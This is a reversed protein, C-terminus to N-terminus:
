LTIKQGTKAAQAVALTVKLSLSADHAPIFPEAKKQVVACLQAAQATYADIFDTEIPQGSISQQWHGDPSDHQWLVLNPFELAGKTGMFRIANQGTKPLALNEGLAFEWGWPSPTRDSLFFSGVAQNKFQLSIAVADEKEFQQDIRSIFATVAEIEGCIFRLLDLEHILNTLIPGAKTKRRWQPAYYADDKRLSWQGSVGILTGIAGSDILEKAKSACPYYRRQHAVMVNCGAKEAARVIEAAEGDSAAIPKEVLLNKCGGEICAIVDRHHRETPTAIIVADATCAELMEAANGYCAIARSAAKAQVAESPDAFAVLEAEALQDIAMIHRQGINGAGVLGIKVQEMKLYGKKGRAAPIIIYFGSYGAIAIVLQQVALSFIKSM